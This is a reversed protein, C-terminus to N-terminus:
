FTVIGWAVSELGRKGQCRNIRKLDTFSTGGRGFHQGKVGEVPVKANIAMLYVPCYLIISSATVHIATTDPLSTGLMADGQLEAATQLILDFAWKAIGYM